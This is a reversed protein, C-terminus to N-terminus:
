TEEDEKSEEKEITTTTVPAPTTPSLKQRKGDRGIRLLTEMNMSLTRAIYDAMPAPLKDSKWVQKKEFCTDHFEAYTEDNTGDQPISLLDVWHLELLEPVNSKDDMREVEEPTLHTFHSLEEKLRKTATIVFSGHNYHGWGRNKVIDITNDCVYRYVDDMTFGVLGDRLEEKLERALTWRADELERQVNKETKGGPLTLTYNWQPKSPKHMTFLLVRTGDLIIISVSDLPGDVGLSQNYTQTRTMTDQAPQSSEITAETM